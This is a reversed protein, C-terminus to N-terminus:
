PLDSVVTEGPTAGAQAIVTGDPGWFGSGGATLLPGDMGAGCALAVHVGNATARAAMREDRPDEASNLTAAVYIEAGAAVTAAAHEPLSADRCIALGLRRGDLDLVAHRDGATFRQDEPPHLHIKRYAATVGTGDILLMAIYERGDTDALPAGALAYADAAACAAVIPALRRDDCTLAAADLNYGTLSLEPFVVLRAGATLVIGAHTAANAAIDYATVPPQAVAIRM